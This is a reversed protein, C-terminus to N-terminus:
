RRVARRVDHELSLIREEQGDVRNAVHEISANLGQVAAAIGTIKDSISDLKDRLKWVTGVIASTVMVAAMVISIIIGLSM